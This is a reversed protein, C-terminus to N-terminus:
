VPSMPLVKPVFPNQAPEIRDEDQDFFGLDFDMFSVLWIGDSVERIGITQGAFVASLNIKRRGICIRGCRTVRLTRDHFPYDLEEPSTYVRASPTYLEAPCRM